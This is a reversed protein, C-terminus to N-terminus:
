KPVELEYQKNINVILNEITELNFSTSDIGNGHNTVVQFPDQTLKATYRGINQGIAKSFKGWFQCTEEGNNFGTLSLLHSIYWTTARM